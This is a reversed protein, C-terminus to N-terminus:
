SEKTLTKGNLVQYEKQCQRLVAACKNYEEAYKLFNEPGIISILGMSFLEDYLRLEDPNFTRVNDPSQAKKEILLTINAMISGLQEEKFRERFWPDLTELNDRTYRIVDVIAKHIQDFYTLYNAPVDFNTGVIMGGFLSILSKGKTITRVIEPLSESREVRKMIIMMSIQEITSMLTENLDGGSYNKFFVARVTEETM